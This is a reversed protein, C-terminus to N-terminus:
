RRTEGDRSEVERNAVYSAFTAMTKELWRSAGTGNGPGGKAGAVRLPLQVLAILGLFVTLAHGSLFDFVSKAEILLSM